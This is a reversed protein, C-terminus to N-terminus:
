EFIRQWPQPTTAAMSAIGTSGLPWNLGDGKGPAHVVPAICRTTPLAHMGGNQVIEMADVM